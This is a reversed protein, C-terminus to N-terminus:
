EDPIEHAGPFELWEVGFGTESLLDRLVKASRLPLVQDWSGHSQVVPVKPATALLATTGAQDIISSSFLVLGDPAKLDQPWRLLTRLAVQSGQSFGGLILRREGVGLSRI